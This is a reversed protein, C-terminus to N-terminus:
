SDLVVSRFREPDKLLQEKRQKGISKVRHEAKLAASRTGIAVSHLLTLPGRGRLAKAGRSSHQHEHLRRDVDTSIGTYLRGDRTRLVYLWWVSKM